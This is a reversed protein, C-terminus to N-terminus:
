HRQLEGARPSHKVPHAQQGCRLTAGHSHQSPGEGQKKRDEQEGKAAPAVATGIWVGHALWGADGKLGQVGGCNRAAQDREGDRGIAGGDEGILPGLIVDGDEACQTRAEGEIVRLGRIRPAVRHGHGVVIARGGAIRCGQGHNRSRFERRGDADDRVGGAVQEDGVPIFVDDPLHAGQFLHGQQRSALPDRTGRIPLATAGLEPVRTAEGEIRGPIQHDSIGPVM